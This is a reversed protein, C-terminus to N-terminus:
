LLIQDIMQMLIINMSKNGKTGITAISKIKPWKCLEIFDVMIMHM